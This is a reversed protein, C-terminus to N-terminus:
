KKKLERNVGAKFTGLGLLGLLALFEPSQVFQLFTLDGALFQVLVVLAGLSILIYTKKNQLWQRM